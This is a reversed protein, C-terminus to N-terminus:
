GDLPKASWFGPLCVDSGTEVCGGGPRNAITYSLQPSPSARLWDSLFVLSPASGHVNDLFTYLFVGLKPSPIFTYIM